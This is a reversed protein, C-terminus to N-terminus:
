PEKQSGSQLPHETGRKLQRAFWEAKRQEPSELLELKNPVGLADRKTWFCVFYEGKQRVCEEARRPRTYYPDITVLAGPDFEICDDRKAAMFGRAAEDSQQFLESLKRYDVLDKCGFSPNRVIRDNGVVQAKALSCFVCLFALAAKCCIMFPLRM